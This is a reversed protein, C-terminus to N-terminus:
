GDAKEKGSNGQGGTKIMPPEGGATIDKNEPAPPPPPPKPVSKKDNDSM